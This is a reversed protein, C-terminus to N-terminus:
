SHIITLYLLVLLPFTQGEKKREVGGWQFLGKRYIGQCAVGNNHVCIQM